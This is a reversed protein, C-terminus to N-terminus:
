PCEIKRLLSSTRYNSVYNYVFNIKRLKPEILCRLVFLLMIWVEYSVKYSCMRVAVRIVVLSRTVFSLMPRRLPRSRRLLAASCFFFWLNTLSRLRRWHRLANSDCTYITIQIVHMYARALLRSMQGAMSITIVYFWVYGTILEFKLVNWSLRSDSWMHNQCQCIDFTM